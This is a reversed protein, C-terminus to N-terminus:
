AHIKGWIAVLAEVADPRWAAAIHPEFKQTRECVESLQKRSLESLRRQRDPHTALAAIGERLGFVLAQVTAQPAGSRRRVGDLHAILAELSVDNWNHPIQDPPGQWRSAAIYRPLQGHAKRLDAERCAACFSPNICPSAGCTPCAMM